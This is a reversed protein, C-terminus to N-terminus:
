SGSRKGEARTPRQSAALIARGVDFVAGTGLAEAVADLEHEGCAQGPPPSFALGEPMPDLGKAGLRFALMKSEHDSLDLCTAVERIPLRRLRWTPPAAEPKLYDRPTTGGGGPADLDFRTVGSRYQTYPHTERENAPMRDLEAIVRNTDWHDGPPIYLLPADARHQPPRDM